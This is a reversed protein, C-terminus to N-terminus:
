AAAHLYASNFGAITCLRSWDSIQVQRVGQKLAGEARLEQLMRNVHVATLGTAEAIEQQTLPLATSEPPGLGAAECRSLFECLMHSIRAKAERRGVNLVWERVVSGDILCDRWLAKGLAPREWALSLLDVKPIWAVRAATVTQVSHDARSLLLHQIDVLDGRVHFSVIQRAGSLAEKYRSAFGEVLLCCQDPEDGERVLRHSRTVREARLPLAALRERDYDDLPGLRELKKLLWALAAQEDSSSV